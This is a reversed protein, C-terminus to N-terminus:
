DLHMRRPKRGFCLLEIVVLADLPQMEYTM